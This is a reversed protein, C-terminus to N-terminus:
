LYIQDDANPHMGRIKKIKEIQRSNKFKDPYMEISKQYVLTLFYATFLCMGINKEAFLPLKGIRVEPLGAIIHIM